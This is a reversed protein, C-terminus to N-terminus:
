DKLKDLIDSLAKVQGMLTGARMDDSDLILVGGFTELAVANKKMEEIEKRLAERSESLALSIESILYREFDGKILSETQPSLHRFIVKWSVNSESIRTFHEELRKKMTTMPNYLKRANQRIETDKPGILNKDM